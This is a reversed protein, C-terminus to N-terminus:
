KPTHLWIQATDITVNQDREAQLGDIVKAWEFPVGRRQAANQLEEMRGDPLSNTDYLLRGILTSKGHDVHGVIVIKLQEAPARREQGAAGTAQALGESMKSESRMWGIQLSASRERMCM